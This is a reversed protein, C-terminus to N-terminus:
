KVAAPREQDVVLAMLKMSADVVMGFIYEFLMKVPFLMKVFVVVVLAVVVLRETEPRAEVLASMTELRLVALQSTLADAAPTKLQPVSAVPLARWSGNGDFAVVVSSVNVPPSREPADEVM